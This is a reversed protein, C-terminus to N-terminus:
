HKKGMLQNALIAYDSQADATMNQTVLSGLETAPMVSLAKLVAGLATARSKFKRSAAGRRRLFEEADRLNPLFLKSQYLRAVQMVLNRIEETMPPLSALLEDPSKERKASKARKAADLRAIEAQLQEPSADSLGALADLVSKRGFQAVLLRLQLKLFDNTTMM